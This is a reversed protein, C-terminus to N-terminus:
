EGLIRLFNRRNQLSTYLDNKTREDVASVFPDSVVHLKLLLRTSYLKGM